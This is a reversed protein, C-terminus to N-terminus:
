RLGLAPPRWHWSSECSSCRSILFQSRRAFILMIATAFLLALFIIGSIVAIWMQVTMAHDDGAPALNMANQLNQQLKEVRSVLQDLLEAGSSAYGQDTASVPASLGALDSYLEQQGKLTPRLNSAVQVTAVLAINGSEGELSHVIENLTKSAESFGESVAKWQYEADRM